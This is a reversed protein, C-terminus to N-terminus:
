LVDTFFFYLDNFIHLEPRFDDVNIVINKYFKVVPCACYSNIFWRVLAM